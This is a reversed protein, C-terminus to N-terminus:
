DWKQLTEERFSEYEKPENFDTTIDDILEYGQEIDRGDLPMNRIAHYLQWGKADVIEGREIMGILTDLSSRMLDGDHAKVAVITKTTGFFLIDEVDRAIIQAMAQETYFVDGYLFCVDDQILEYCFRDIEREGRQPAHRVAGEVEYAPNASSIVVEATGDLEHILRTTRALLTEGDVTILHKPIGNYNQWRVGKGNAMIIYRM